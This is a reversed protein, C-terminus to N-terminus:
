EHGQGGDKPTQLKKGLVAAAERYYRYAPESYGYRDIQGITHVAHDYWHEAQERDGQRAYAMALFFWDFADGGARRAMSEKLADICRKWDGVRYYAVGLTNYFDGCGPPGDVARKALEVAELPNRLSELPSNALFWAFNNIASPRPNNQLNIRYHAAASSLHSVGETIKGLDYLQRGLIDHALALEGHFRPEEPFEQVLATYLAIAKEHFEQSQAYQGQVRLVDGMLMYALGAEFRTEPDDPDDDELIGQFFRLMEEAVERRLDAIGRMNSWRKDQLKQMFQTSAARIMRFNREARYRAQRTVSWSITAVQKQRRAEALAADKQGQARLMLVSHVVLAAVAVLFLVIATRVVPRHRRAWKRAREGLTPRRALIPKNELYRHLDDALEQATTYRGEPEKAIAKLVITELEVPIAPNLRRVPPPDDHAIRQLLEQRDRVTYAPQLTLFEYLTVGLSYIDTRHDVQYRRGMAQEPSMYRLTGLLDGTLTLGAEDRCRALGFDTIWLHVRADVLLNAPKIDRHVVGQRHAHELAEAAQVGLQAVTRFFAPNRTSPRTVAAQREATTEAGVARPVPPPASRPALEAEASKAESESPPDILGALQRLEAIMAALTQGEIFQMAYFHTGREVGVQYVPVINTHHLQAAAQAENKFRLLQKPDLATAFPLVKLAVRRNLSIQEAEYVIGMGGRGVERVIRFDGLQGREPLPSAPTPEETSVAAQRFGVAAQHLLDLKDLYIRLKEALEPYRAMLGEPDPRRGQELDMLYNELIRLVRGTQEQSTGSASSSGRIGSNV